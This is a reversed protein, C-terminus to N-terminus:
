FFSWPTLLKGGVDGADKGFIILPNTAVNNRPDPSTLPNKIPNPNLTSKAFAMPNSVFRDYLSTGEKPADSWQENPKYAMQPSDKYQGPAAGASWPSAAFSGVYDRSFNPDRLNVTAPHPVYTRELVPVAPKVLPSSQSLAASWGTGPSWHPATPNAGTQAGKPVSYVPDAALAGPRINTLYDTPNQTYEKAGNSPNIFAYLGPLEETYNPLGLGGRLISTANDTQGAKLAAVAAALFGSNGTQSANSDDAM